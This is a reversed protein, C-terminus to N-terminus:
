WFRVFCFLGYTFGFNFDTSNFEEASNGVICDTSRELWFHCSFLLNYYFMNKVPTAKLETISGM